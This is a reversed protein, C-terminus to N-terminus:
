TLHLFSNILRGWRTAFRREPLSHCDPPSDSGSRSRAAALCTDAYGVSSTNKIRVSYTPTGTENGIGHTHPFPLIHFGGNRPINLINGICLTKMSLNLQRVNDGACVPRQIFISDRFLEASFGHWTSGPSHSPSPFALAWVSM